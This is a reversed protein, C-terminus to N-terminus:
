SVVLDVLIKGGPGALKRLRFHWAAAPMPCAEFQETCVDRKGVHQCAKAAGQRCVAHDDPSVGRQRRARRAV